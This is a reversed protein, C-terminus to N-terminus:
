SKYLLVFAKYAKKVLEESENDSINAAGTALMTAIGHTFIILMVYIQSAEDQSIDLKKALNASVEKDGMWEYIDRASTLEKSKSLFLMRFLNIEGRAFQINAEGMSELCREADVRKYIYENYYEMAKAYLADKLEDMNKYYSYIPQVSCGIRAAISRANISEYGEERVIMWATDLIDQRDIIQKPM